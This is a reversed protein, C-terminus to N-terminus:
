KLLFDSATVLEGHAFTAMQIAAGAGSGDADYYLVSRGTGDDTDFLFQGHGAETASSNPDTLDGSVFYHAAFDNAGVGGLKVGSAIGFGAKLIGIKDGDASTFDTISDSAGIIETKNLYNFVDAGDGGTLIDVQAGGTLTDNGERGSLVNGGANGTLIDNGAGGTLDEFNTFKDGAADGGSGTASATVGTGANYVGLTVTVATVSHAYSLVDDTGLGGDM